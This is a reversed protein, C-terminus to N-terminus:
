KKKVPETKDKEVEPLNKVKPVEVLKLESLTGKFAELAGSLTNIEDQAKVKEKRLSKLNIIINGLFENTKKARNELESIKTEIKNIVEMNM